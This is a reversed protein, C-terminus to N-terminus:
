FNVCGEAFVPVDDVQSLQMTQVGARCAVEEEATLDEVMISVNLAQLVCRSSPTLGDYGAFLYPDNAEYFAEDFGESNVCFVGYKGATAADLSDADWCPCAVEDPAPEPVNSIPANPLDSGDGGAKELWNAFLDAMAEEDGRNYANQYATCLGYLGKSDKFPKCVDHKGAFATGSFLNFLLILVSSAIFKRM